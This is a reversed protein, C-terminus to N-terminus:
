VDILFKYGLLFATSRARNLQDNIFVKEYPDISPEDTVNPSFKQFIKRGNVLFVM